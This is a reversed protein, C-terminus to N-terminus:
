NENNVGFCPEDNENFGVLGVRGSLFNKLLINGVNVLVAWNIMKMIDELESTEQEVCKLIIEDIEEQSVAVYKNEDENWHLDDAPILKNIIDDYKM